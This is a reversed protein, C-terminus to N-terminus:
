TGSEEGKTIGGSFDWDPEICVRHGFYGEDNISSKENIMIGAEIQEDQKSECRKRMWEATILMKM